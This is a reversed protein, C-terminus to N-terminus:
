NLPKALLATAAMAFITVQYLFLASLLKIYFSM